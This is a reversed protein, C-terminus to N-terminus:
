HKLMENYYTKTNCKIINLLDNNVIIDFSSKIISYLKYNIFDEVYDRKCIKSNMDYHMCTNLDSSCINQEIEIQNNDIYNTDITNISIETNNENTDKKFFNFLFNFM